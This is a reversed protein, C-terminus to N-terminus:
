PLHWTLQQATIPRVPFGNTYIPTAQDLIATIPVATLAATGTSLFLPTFLAHQVNISPGITPHALASLAEARRPRTLECRADRPDALHVCHHEGM